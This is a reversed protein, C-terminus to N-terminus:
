PRPIGYISEANLRRTHEANDEVTKCCNNCAYFTKSKTEFEQQRVLWAGCQVKPFAWGHHDFTYGPKVPIGSHCVCCFYKKGEARRKKEEQIFVVETLEKEGSHFKWLKDM